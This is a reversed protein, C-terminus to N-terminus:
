IYKNLSNVIIRMEKLSYRQDIPLALLNNVLHCEVSDNPVDNLVEPWYTPIYIRERILAQKIESGKTTLFPYVMPTSNDDAGYVMENRSGIENELFAFNERRIKKVKEIDIHQMLYNTMDSMVKIPQGSLQADNILFNSYGVEADKENRLILHSMRSESYDKQLQRIDISRNTRLYGGDPLGFFKRPSYATDVDSIPIHFFAQANDLVLNIRSSMTANVIKDCIGFYNTILVTEDEPIDNIRPSLDENIWYYEYEIGNETLMKSIVDCTYYPIHIKSCNMSQLALASANRGSNVKYMYNHPLHQKETSKPELGFYGGIASM